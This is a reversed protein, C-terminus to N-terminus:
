PQSSECDVSSLLYDARVGYVPHVKLEECDSIQSITLIKISRALNESRAKLRAPLGGGYAVHFEGVIVTMFKKEHLWRDLTQWAMTDDWMSQAEFYHQIKKAPVHQQMAESFRQFYAENGLQPDPPLFSAAANDIANLGLSSIQRAVFKPLNIGFTWGNYRLPTWFQEKYEAFPIGAWAVENLFESETAQKNLYRDMAPQQDYSFFEMGLIADSHLQGVTNLLRIQQRHHEHSDHQEGILLVSAQSIQENLRTQSVKELSQGDYLYFRDAADAFSAGFVSFSFLLTLKALGKSFKM